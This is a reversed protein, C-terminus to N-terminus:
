LTAHRLGPLQKGLGALGLGDVELRERDVEAGVALLVRRLLANGEGALAVEALERQADDLDHNRRWGWRRRRALAADAARLSGPQAEAVHLMKQDLGDLQRGRVLEH